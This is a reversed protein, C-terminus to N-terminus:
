SGTAFFLGTTGDKEPCKFFFDVETELNEEQKQIQPSVNREKGSPNTPSFLTFVTFLITEAVILFSLVSFLFCLFFLREKYKGNFIKLVCVYYIGVSHFIGVIDELEEGYM